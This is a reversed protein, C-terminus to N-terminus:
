GGLDNIHPHYTIKGTTSDKSIYSKLAIFFMLNVYPCVTVFPLLMMTTLATPHNLTVLFAILSLQNMVMAIFMILISHCILTLM